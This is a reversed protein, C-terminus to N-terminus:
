KEFAKATNSVTNWQQIWQFAQLKGKKTDLLFMYGRGYHNTNEWACLYHRDYQTGDTNWWSPTSGPAGGFVAHFNSLNINTIITPDNNAQIGQLDMSQACLEALDATEPQLTATLYRYNTDFALFRYTTIDTASPPIAIWRSVESEMYENATGGRMENRGRTLLCGGLGFYWGVALLPVLIAMAKKM